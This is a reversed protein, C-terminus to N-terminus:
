KKNQRLLVRALTPGVQNGDADLERYPEVYCWAVSRKTDGGLPVVYFPNYQLVEGYYKEGWISPDPSAIKAGVQWPNEGKALSALLKKLEKDAEKKSSDAAKGGNGGNGDDEKGGRGDDAPTGNGDNGSPKPKPPAPSDKPPPLKAGGGHCGECKPQV